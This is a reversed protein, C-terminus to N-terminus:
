RDRGVSSHLPEGFYDNHELWGTEKNTYWGTEKNMYVDHM